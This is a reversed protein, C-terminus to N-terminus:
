ENTETVGTPNEDATSIIRENPATSNQETGPPAIAPNTVVPRPTARRVRRRRRTQGGADILFVGVLLLLSVLLASQRLFRNQMVSERLCSWEWSPEFIRETM